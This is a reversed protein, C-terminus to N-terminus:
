LSSGARREEQCQGNSNGSVTSNFCQSAAKNQNEARMSGCNRWFFVRPDRCLWMCDCAHIAQLLLKSRAAIAPSPARAEVAGDQSMSVIPSPETQCEEVTFRGRMRRQGLYSHYHCCHSRQSVAHFKVHRSTGRCPDDPCTTSDYISGKAFHWALHSRFVAWSSTSSLSTGCSLM